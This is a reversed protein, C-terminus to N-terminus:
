ERTNSETHIVTPTHQGHARERHARREGPGRRTDAADLSTTQVSELEALIARAFIEVLQARLAPTMSAHNASAKPLM